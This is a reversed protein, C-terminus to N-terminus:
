YLDLRASVIAWAILRGVEDTELEEWMAEDSGSTKFSRLAELQLEVNRKVM